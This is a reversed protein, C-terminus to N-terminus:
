SPKKLLQIQDFYLLKPLSNLFKDKERIHLESEGVFVHYDDISNGDKRVLISDCDKFIESFRILKRRNEKTIQNFELAIEPAKGQYYYDSYQCTYSNDFPAGQTFSHLAKLVNTKGSENAGVLATIKSDLPFALEFISKYARVLISSIVM